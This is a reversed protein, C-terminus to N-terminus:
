LNDQQHRGGFVNEFFGLLKELDTKTIKFGSKTYDSIALPLADWTKKLANPDGTVIEYVRSGWVEKIREHSKRQSPNWIREGRGPRKPVIYAYYVMSKKYKNAVKKLKDFVNKLDEGKVTNHKNKLEILISDDNKKLDIGLENGRELDTWGNVKGLLKQHFEGIKNNITKDLQRVRESKVWTDANIKGTVIDFIIKFPDLANKQLQIMDVENTLKQYADCVWKICELFEKDSVFDVYKNAIM